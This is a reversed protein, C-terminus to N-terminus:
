AERSQTRAPRKVLCDLIEPDGIRVEL